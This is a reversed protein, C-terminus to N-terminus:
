GLSIPSSDSSPPPRSKGTGTARGPYRMLCLQVAFGLRNHPRRRQNILALDDEHLTYHHMLESGGTPLDFISRQADSLLTKRRAM